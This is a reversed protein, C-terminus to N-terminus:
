CKLPLPCLLICFPHSWVVALCIWSVLHLLDPHHCSVVRFSCLCQCCAIHWYSVVYQVVFSCNPNPLFGFGTAELQCIITFAAVLLLIVVLCGFRPFTQKRCMPGSNHVRSSPTDWARHIALTQLDPIRSHLMIYNQCSLNPYSFVSLGIFVQHILPQCFMSGSWSNSVFPCIFQVLCSWGHDRRSSEGAVHDFVPYTCVAYQWHLCRKVPPCDCLRLQATHIARGNKEALDICVKCLPKTHVALIDNDDIPNGNDM